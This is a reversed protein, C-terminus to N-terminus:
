SMWLAPDFIGQSYAAKGRVGTAFQHTVEEFSDGMSLKNKISWPCGVLKSESLRHGILKIIAQYGKCLSFDLGHLGRGERGSLFYRRCMDVPVERCKEGCFVVPFVDLHHCIIAFFLVVLVHKM